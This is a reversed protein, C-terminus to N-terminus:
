LYAIEWNFSEFVWFVLKQDNEVKLHETILETIHMSKSLRWLTMWILHRSVELDDNNEGVFTIMKMAVKHIRRTDNWNSGANLIQPLIPWLSPAGYQLIQFFSSASRKKGSMIMWKRPYGKGRSAKIMLEQKICLCNFSLAKLVPRSPCTVFDASSMIPLKTSIKVGPIISKRNLLNDSPPFGLKVAEANIMEQDWPNM